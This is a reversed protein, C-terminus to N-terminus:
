RVLIKKTRLETAGTLSVILIQGIFSSVDHVHSTADHLTVFDGQGILKGQLSFIQYDWSGSSNQPIYFYIQGKHGFMRVDNGQFAEVAVVHSYGTTGDFDTQRIKYYNISPKPHSDHYSYSQVQNSNGAGPLQGLPQFYMGDTSRLVTFFDNNIETATQWTLLVEGDLLEAEFSLWDVPLPNIDFDSGLAFESFGNVNQQLFYFDGESTGYSFEDGAMEWDDNRDNRKLIRISSPTEIGEFGGARLSISYETDIVGDQNVDWYGENSLTNILIGDIEEPLNGLYEEAQPPDIFNVTLTAEDNTNLQGEYFMIGAFSRYTETGVPFFYLLNGSSSTNESVTRTFGGNIWSNPSGMGSPAPNALFLQNGDTTLLGNELELQESITLERTLTVADQSNQLMVRFGQVQTPLGNGTVMNSAGSVEYRAGASFVRNNTIVNGRNATQTIGFISEYRLTADSNLHFSGPGTIQNEDLIELRAPNNVDMVGNITVDSVIRLNSMSEHLFTSNVELNHYTRDGRLIRRVLINPFPNELAITGGSLYYDGTLGPVTIDNGGGRLIILRGTDMVLDGTGDIGFDRVSAEGTIELRNLVELPGMNLALDDAFESSVVINHYTRQSRLSWLPNTSGSGVMELTGGTITYEGTLFPQEWSGEEIRFVGGSKVLAGSGEIRFAFGDLPYPCILTGRRIELSGPSEIYFTPTTNFRFELEDSALDIIINKAGHDNDEVPLANGSVQHTTGTYHYTANPSLSLQYFVLTGIGSNSIGEPHSTIITADDELTFSNSTFSYNWHIIHSGANITAGTRVVMDKSLLMAHLILTSGQDVILGEFPSSWGAYANQPQSGNFIVTRGFPEFQGNIIWDGGVYFDSRPPGLQDFFPHFRLQHNNLVDGLVRFDIDPHQHSIFGGSASDITFNGLVTLDDPYHGALNLYLSTGESVQVHWPDNWETVRTFSGGTAYRLVSGELYVPASAVSGSILHLTGSIFSIATEFQVDIGVIAVDHFIIENSGAAAAGEAFEVRGSAADFTGNNTFTGQNEIVLTQDDYVALTGGDSITVSNVRAFDDLMVVHENRIVAHDGPLPISGGQWTAADWWNGSNVTIRLTRTTYGNNGFGDGILGYQSHVPIPFGMIASLLCLILTKGFFGSLRKEKSNRPMKLNQFMSFAFGSSYYKIYPKGAKRRVHLTQNCILRPNTPCSSKRM